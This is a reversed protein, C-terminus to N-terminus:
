AAAFHNKFGTIWDIEDLTADTYLADSEQWAKFGKTILALTLYTRFAATQLQTFKYINM